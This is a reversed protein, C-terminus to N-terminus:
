RAADGAGAELLRDLLEDQESVLAAVTAAVEDRHRRLRRLDQDAERHDRDALPTESVLARTELDDAVEQLYAVQEDLIRLSERARVLEDRADSLRKSLNARRM